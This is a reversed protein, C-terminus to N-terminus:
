ESLISIYEDGYETLEKIHDQYTYSDPKKYHKKYEIYDEWKNFPAVGLARKYFYTKSNDVIFLWCEKGHEQKSVDLLYTCNNTKDDWVKANFDGAERAEVNFYGTFNPEGLFKYLQEILLESKETQYTKIEYCAVISDKKAFLFNVSNKLYNSNEDFYGYLSVGNFNMLDKAGSRVADNGEGYGPVNRITKVDSSIISNIHKGLIGKCLDLTNSKQSHCHTLAVFCFLFYYSARINLM